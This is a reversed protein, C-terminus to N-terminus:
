RIELHMRLDLPGMNGQIPDAHVQSPDVCTHRLINVRLRLVLSGAQNELVVTVQRRVESPLLHVVGLFADCLKLWSRANDWRFRFDLDLHADGHVGAAVETLQEQAVDLVHLQRHAKFHQGIRVAQIDTVLCLVIWTGSQM